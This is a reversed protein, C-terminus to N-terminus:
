VRNWVHRSYLRLAAGLQKWRLRAPDTALIRAAARSERCTLRECYEEILVFVCEYARGCASEPLPFIRDLQGRHRRAPATRAM